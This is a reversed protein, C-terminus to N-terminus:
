LTEAMWTVLQDLAPAAEHARPHNVFITFAVWRGQLTRVYGAYGKVGELTGTKIWARGLAPSMGLRRKVTGEIGALPLTNIWETPDAGSLGDLLLLTMSRPAIRERRSLGSGNDLVLEPFTLNRSALWTRVREEADARTGPGGTQASINLFVMRAMPNNSLKNIDAVVDLLSRSSGWDLLLRAVAPTPASKVRAKITGGAARWAASFLRYAYDVHGFPSVYFDARPCLKGMRGSVAVAQPGSQSVAIQNRECGGPVLRVGGKIAVGDLAPLLSIAAKNGNPAVSVQVAKFNLMAAHPVVNYPKLGQGDFADPKPPVESFRSGDLVWDGSIDQVGLARLRRVIESLDEIVLKPDGGGKLYLAGSLKGGRLQGTMWLQTNFRYDAGLLGLAARTTVLKITSAPNFPTLAQHEIWKPPATGGSLVAISYGVAEPPFGRPRFYDPPQALAESGRLTDHVPDIQGRVPALLASFAALLVFLSLSLSYTKM